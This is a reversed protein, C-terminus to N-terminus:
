WDDFPAADVKNCDSSITGNLSIGNKVPEM